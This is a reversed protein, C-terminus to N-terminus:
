STPTPKATTVSKGDEVKAKTSLRDSSRVSISNPQLSPHAATEFDSIMHSLNVALSDAEDSGCTLEALGAVDARPQYVAGPRSLARHHPGHRHRQAALPVQSM